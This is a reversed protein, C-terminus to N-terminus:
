REASAASGRRPRSKRSRTELPHACVTAAGIILLLTALPIRAIRTSVAVKRAM